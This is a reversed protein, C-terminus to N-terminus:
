NEVLRPYVTPSVIVGGPEWTLNKYERNYVSLPILVPKNHLIDACGVVRDRLHTHHTLTHPTRCVVLDPSQICTCVVYLLDCMDCSVVPLDYLPVYVFTSCISSMSDIRQTNPTTPFYLVSYSSSM